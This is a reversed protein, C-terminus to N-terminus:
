RYGSFRPKLGPRFNTRRVGSASVESHGRANNFESRQIHCVVPGIKRGTATITLFLTQMRRRFAFGNVAARCLVQWEIRRRVVNLRGARACGPHPLGQLWQISHGHTRRGVRGGGRGSWRCGFGNRCFGHSPLQAGCQRRQAKVGDREVVVLGVDQPQALASKPGIFM